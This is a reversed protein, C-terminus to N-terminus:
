PQGAARGKRFLSIGIVLWINEYTALSSHELRPATRRTM